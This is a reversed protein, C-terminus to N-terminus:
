AAVYFADALQSAVKLVEPLAEHPFAHNFAEDIDGLTM